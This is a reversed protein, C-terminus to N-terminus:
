VDLISLIQEGDHPGPSFFMVVIDHLGFVCEAKPHWLCVTDSFHLLPSHGLLNELLRVNPAIKAIKFKTGYNM